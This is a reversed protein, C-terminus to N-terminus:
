GFDPHLTNNPRMVEIYDASRADKPLRDIRMNWVNNSPFVPCGGIVSGTSAASSHVQALVVSGRGGREFPPLKRQLIAYIAGVCLLIIVFTQWRSLRAQIVNAELSAPMTGM